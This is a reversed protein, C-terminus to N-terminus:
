KPLNKLSCPPNGPKLGRSVPIQGMQRLREFAAMLSQDFGFYAMTKRKLAALWHRQRSKSIGGPWRGNLIRHCLCSRITDISARFRNFYGTPKMRIICKCDPCRYRRLFLCEDFCDFFAAVFGHGWVRVSNCRPCCEPRKWNYNRGELYIENLFVSVPLIMIVTQLSTFVDRNNFPHGSEGM